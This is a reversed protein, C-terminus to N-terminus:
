RGTKLIGNRIAKNLEAGCLFINMCIYLWLMLLVVATLSGYVYSYNSFYRIYISYIWSFAIWGLAALAAGPLQNKFSMDARTLFKYFSAFLLSLIIMFILWKLKMFLEVIAAIWPIYKVLLLEIREGFGFVIITAIIVLMFIITYLIAIARTTIYGTKKQPLYIRNLGQYLSTIGKSALWLTTIATLSLPGSSNNKDFVEMVISSVYSSIEDPIYLHMFSTMNSIDVPIVYKLLTILLMIFPIASFIMFFSAQASFVPVDDDICTQTFETAMNWLFKINKM